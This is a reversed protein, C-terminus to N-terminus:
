VVTAHRVPRDVRRDRPPERAPENGHDSSHVRAMLLLSETQLGADSMMRALELARLYFGLARETRADQRRSKCIYGLQRVLEAEGEGDGGAGSGAGDDAGAEADGESKGELHAQGLWCLAQYQTRRMGNGGQRGLRLAEDFRRAALEHQQLACHCEGLRQWAAAEDKVNGCQRQHWVDVTHWPLADEYRGAVELKRGIDHAENGAHNHEEAKLKSYASATEAQDRHGHYKHVYKYPCARGPDPLDHKAICRIDM